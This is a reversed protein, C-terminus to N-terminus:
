GYFGSELDVFLGPGGQDAVWESEAIGGAGAMTGVLEGGDPDARQPQATGAACSPQVAVGGDCVGAEGRSSDEHVCGNGATAVLHIRAEARESYAHARVLKFGKQAFAATLKEEMERQAPWCIQNASQRLDGSTVLLVENEAPKAIQSMEVAM